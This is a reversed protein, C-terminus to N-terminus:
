EAVAPRKHRVIPWERPASVVAHIRGPSERVIRVSVKGDPTDVTASDGVRLTLTISGTDPDPM